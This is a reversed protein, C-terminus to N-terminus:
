SPVQVIDYDWPAGDIDKEAADEADEPNAYEEGYLESWGGEWCGQRDNDASCTRCILRYQYPM